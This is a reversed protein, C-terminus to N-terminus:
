LRLCELYLKQNLMGPIQADGAECVRLARGVNPDLLRCWAMGLAASHSSPAM